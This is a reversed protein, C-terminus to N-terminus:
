GAPEDRQPTIDRLERVLHQSILDDERLRGELNFEGAWGGLAERTAADYAGTATGAYRGLSALRRQLDAVLAPTAELLPDNRILMTDDWVAFLRQLEVIPDVHDDVRLDIYRDNRGEYGGGDRVVLLAASQRGRQDGGAADGAILAALLRDCLDGETETFARALEAVVAEGALINGQAAFGDGTVGGAWDMCRSGTFTAAAGSPDVFGVQRDDRGDDAAVLRDLAESAPVGEAMLALGDPGFSTNAWSQTAVAGAGARAWPVVAGVCPFRSAVAIGLDRREPDTAVISFTM